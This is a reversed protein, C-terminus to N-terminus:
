FPLDDKDELFDEDVPAVQDAKFSQYFQDKHGSKTIGEFRMEVQFANYLDIKEVTGKILGQFIMGQAEMAALDKDWTTVNSTAVRIEDGIKFRCSPAIGLFSHLLQEIGHPSKELNNVIVDVVLESVGISMHKKLAKKITEVDLQINIKKSYRTMNIDKIFPAKSQRGLQV